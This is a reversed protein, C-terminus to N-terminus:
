LNFAWSSAIPYTVTPAYAPFASGTAGLVSMTGDTNHANPGDPLGYPFPTGTDFTQTPLSGCRSSDAGSGFWDGGRQANVKTKGRKKKGSSLLASAKAKRNLRYRKAALAGKVLQERTRSSRSEKPKGLLQGMADTHDSAHIKELDCTDREM